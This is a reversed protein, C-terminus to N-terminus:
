DIKRVPIQLETIFEEASESYDNDVINNEISDGDILYGNENIWDVLTRYHKVLDEYPGIVTMCAYDKKPLCVIHDKIDLDLPNVEVFYRFQNFIGIEMDEKPLSTHVEGEVLWSSSKLYHGTNKFIEIIETEDELGTTKIFVGHRDEITQIYISDLKTKSQEFLELKSNIKNKLNQLQQIKFELEEDKKKLMNLLRDANKNNMYDEIESLSIDLNKIFLIRSLKFMSTIDYYRYQNQDDQEPTLLGIKDYHRLTDTSINFIKALEGIRFRNKM